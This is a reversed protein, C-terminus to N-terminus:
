LLEHGPDRVEGLDLPRVDQAAFANHRERVLRLAEYELANVHDQVAVHLALPLRALLVGRLDHEDAAVQVFLRDAFAKEGARCSHEPLTQPEVPLRVGKRWAIGSM